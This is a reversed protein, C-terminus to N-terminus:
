AGLTDEGPWHMWALSVMIGLNVAVGVPLYRNWYAAILLMSVVASGIAIERWLGSKVMLLVGSLVFGLTAAAILGVAVWWAVYDPVGLARMLWSRDEGLFFEFPAGTANANITIPYIDTAICCSRPNYSM